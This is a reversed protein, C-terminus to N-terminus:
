RVSGGATADPASPRGLKRLEGVDDLRVSPDVVRVHSIEPRGTLLSAPRVTLEVQAAALEAQGSTPLRTQMGTLRVRLPLALAAEEVSLVVGTRAELRAAVRGVAHLAISRQCVVLAGALGLGLAALFVGGM